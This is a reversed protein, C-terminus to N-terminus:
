SDKLFALPRAKGNHSFIIEDNEVSAPNEEYLKLVKEETLHDIRNTEDEIDYSQTLELENTNPAQTLDM